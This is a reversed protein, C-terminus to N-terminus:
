GVMRGADLHAGETADGACARGRAISRRAEAVLARDTQQLLLEARVAWAMSFYPDEALAADLAALPDGEYRRMLVLARDYHDVATRSATIVHNGYLDLVDAVRGSEGGIAHLMRFIARFLLLFKHRAVFTNRRL